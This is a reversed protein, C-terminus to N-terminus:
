AIREFDNDNGNKSYRQKNTHTFISRKIPTFFCKSSKKPTIYTLNKIMRRVM